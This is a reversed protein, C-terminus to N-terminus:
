EKMMLLFLVAVCRDKMSNVFHILFNSDTKKTEEKMFQEMENLIQPNEKKLVDSSIVNWYNEISNLDLSNAWCELLEHFTARSSNKPLMVRTKPLDNDQQVRWRQKFQM